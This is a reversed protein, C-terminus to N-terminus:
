RALSRAVDLVRDVRPRKYFREGDDEFFVVKGRADMIFTGALGVGNGFDWRSWAKLMVGETDSLIPFTLHQREVMIKAGELDDASVAAVGVGLKTLEPLVEQLKGLQM